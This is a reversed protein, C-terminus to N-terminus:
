ASSVGTDPMSTLLPAVLPSASILICPKWARWPQEQHAYGFCVFAVGCTQLEPRLINVTYPTAASRVEREHDAVQREVADTRRRAAASVEREHHVEEDLAAMATQMEALEWRAMQAEAAVVDLQGQLEDQAPSLHQSQRLRARLATMAKITQQRPALHNGRKFGPMVTPVDLLPWANSGRCSLAMGYGPAQCSGCSHRCGCLM